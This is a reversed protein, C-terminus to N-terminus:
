SRRRMAGVVSAAMSASSHSARVIEKPDYGGDDAGDPDGSEVVERRKQRSRTIKAALESLRYTKEERVPAAPVATKVPPAKYLGAVKAIDGTRSEQIPADETVKQGRTRAGLAAGINQVSYNTTTAKAMQGANNTTPANM